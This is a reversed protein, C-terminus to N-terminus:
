QVTVTAGGVTADILYEGAAPAIASSQVHITEGTAGTIRLVRTGADYSFSAASATSALLGLVPLAIAGLAVRLPLPLPM